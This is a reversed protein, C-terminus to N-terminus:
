PFLSGCLPAPVGFLYVYTAVYLIFVEIFFLLIKIGFLARKIDIIENVLGPNQSFYVKTITENSAPIYHEGEADTQIQEDPM